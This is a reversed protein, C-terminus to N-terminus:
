YTTRTLRELWWIAWPKLRLPNGIPGGVWSSPQWRGVAWRRRRPMWTRTDWFAIEGDARRMGLVKFDADVAYRVSAQPTPESSSALQFRRVLQSSAVEWVSLTYNISGCVIHTDDPLFQIWVTPMDPKLTTFITETPIDWIQVTGHNVLSAVKTRSLSYSPSCIHSGLMVAAQLSKPTEEIDRREYTQKILSPTNLLESATLHIHLM